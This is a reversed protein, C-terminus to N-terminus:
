EHIGINPDGHTKELWVLFSDNVEPDVHSSKLDDVHWTVTHQKDNVTRNAVCPDYPMIEFGITGLDKVLKKYFLLASQLMGYLAKIVHVYLVPTKGEFSVFNKYIEPDLEVLMEVLPGTIKMTIRDGDSDTEPVSTQVFTNPIDATMVDRGEKAEIVATLLISEVQATPSSTEEREMWSRQKSGDACTRAKITGDKKETLFILSHSTKKREGQSPTNVDIPKFVARDHLQKIEGAAAQYGRTGIKLGAKLSFTEAFSHHHRINRCTQMANFEHMVNAIIRGSQRTYPAEEIQQQHLNLREPPSVTRGSRTTIAAIGSQNDEEDEIEEIEPQNDNDGQPTSTESRYDLDEESYATTETPQTYTEDESTDDGDSSSVYV